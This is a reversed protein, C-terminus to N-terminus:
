EGLAPVIRALTRHLRTLPPVPTPPQIRVSSVRRDDGYTIHLFSGDSFGWRLPWWRGDGDRLRTTISLVNEGDLIPPDDFLMGVNFKAAERDAEYPTPWFVSVALGGALLAVLVLGAAWAKWRKRM